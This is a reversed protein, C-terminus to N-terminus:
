EFLRLQKPKVKYNYVITRENQVIAPPTMNNM